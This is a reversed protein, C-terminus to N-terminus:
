KKVTYAKRITNLLWILVATKGEMLAVRVEGSLCASLLRRSSTREAIFSLARQISSMKSVDSLDRLGLASDRNYGGDIKREGSM